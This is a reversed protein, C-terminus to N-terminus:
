TFIATLSGDVTATGTANNNAAGQVFTMGIGNAFPFGGEPLPYSNNGSSARTLVLVPAGAGATPTTATDYLKIHRPTAAYSTFVVAKLICAGTQIMRSNNDVAGVATVYFDTFLTPNDPLVVRQTGADVVGGGMSITAGGLKALNDLSGITTAGAALTVPEDSALSVRLTGVDSVGGGMSITAGGLKALNDLSGITTAGASLAVPENSALSVRLTGADSVGGGMSVAVGGLQAVNNLTQNSAITVEGTSSIQGTNSDEKHGFAVGEITGSTYATVRVRLYKFMIPIKVGGTATMSIVYPSLLAGVNQSAVDFWTGNNASAQFKVEGVWTGTLQLSVFKYASADFSDIIDNDVVTVPTLPLAVPISTDIENGASDYKTVRIAKSVSDVTALDTGNGSKIEVAM